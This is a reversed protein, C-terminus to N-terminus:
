EPRPPGSTGRVQLASTFLQQSVSGGAGELRRILVDVGARGM